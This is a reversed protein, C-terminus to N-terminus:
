TVNEHSWGEAIRQILLTDNWVGRIPYKEMGKKFKGVKWERVGDWLWWIKVKGYKDPIGTRFTPLKTASEPIKKNAVVHVIGRNCAAGLPFFTIIQPNQNVISSFDNPRKMYFGPFVRLLAGYKPPVDHKYTYQAYSLGKPTQIEIVDGVKPRKHNM